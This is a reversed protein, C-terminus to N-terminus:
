EYLRKEDITCGKKRSAVTGGAKNKKWNKEVVAFPM